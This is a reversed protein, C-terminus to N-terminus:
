NMPTTLVKGYCILELEERGNQTDNSDNRGSIYILMYLMCMYIHMYM